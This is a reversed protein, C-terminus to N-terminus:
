LHERDCSLVAAQRGPEGMSLGCGSLQLDLSFIPEVITLSDTLPQPTAALGRHLASNSTEGSYSMYTNSIGIIFRKMSFPPDLKVERMRLMM